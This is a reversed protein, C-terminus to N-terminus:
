LEKTKKSQYEAELVRIFEKMEESFTRKVFPKVIFSFTNTLVGKPEVRSHYLLTTSGDDESRLTYESRARADKGDYESTWSEPRNLAVRVDFSMKRFYM